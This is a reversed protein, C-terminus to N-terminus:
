VKNLGTDTRISLICYFYLAWYVNKIFRYCATIPGDTVRVPQYRGAISKNLISTLPITFPQLRSCNSLTYTPLVIDNLSGSYNISIFNNSHINFPDCYSFIYRRVHADLFVKSWGACGHLRILSRQVSLPYSGIRKGDSLLSEPWIPLIRLNIQSKVPRIHWLTCKRM